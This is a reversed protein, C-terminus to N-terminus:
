RSLTRSPEAEIHRSLHQFLIDEIRPPLEAAPKPVTTRGPVGDRKVSSSSAKQYHSELYRKVRPREDNVWSLLKEQPYSKALESVAQYANSRPPPASKRLRERFQALQAQVRAIDLEQQIHQPYSYYTILEKEDNSFSKLLRARQANPLTTLLLAVAAYKERQTGSLAPSTESSAQSAADPALMEPPLSMGEQALAKAVKPILEPPTEEVFIPGYEEEYQGIFYMLHGEAAQNVMEVQQEFSFQFEPTNEQGYTCGVIQKSQNLVELALNQMIIKKVEGAIGMEQCKLLAYCIGETFLQIGQHSLREDWAIPAPSGPLELGPEDRLMNAAINNFDNIISANEQFIEDPLGVAGLRGLMQETIMQALGQIDFNEM